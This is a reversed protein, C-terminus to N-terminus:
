SAEVPEITAKMPGTSSAISHDRGFALIQERKLEAHEMTTTLCIAVGHHDVEYAIRLGKTFTHGFLRSMM